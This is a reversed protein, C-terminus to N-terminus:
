LEGQGYKNLLYDAALKSIRGTKLAKKLYEMTKPYNGLGTAIYKLQIPTATFTGKRQLFKQYLIEDNLSNSHKEDAMKKNTRFYLAALFDLGHRIIITDGNSLDPLGLVSTKDKFILYPIHNRVRIIDCKMNSKISLDANKTTKLESGPLIPKKMWQLELIPQQYPTVTKDDRAIIIVLDNDTDFFSLYQTNNDVEISFIPNHSSIERKDIQEELKNLISINWKGNGNSSNLRYTGLGTKLHIYKRNNQISPPWLPILEPPKELLQVYRDRAYKSSEWTIETFRIKCVRWKQIGKTLLPYTEEVKLFSRDPVSGQFLFYYNIDTTIVGNLSISRSYIDGIRFFVGKSFIRSIKEGWIKSLATGSIKYELKYSDYVWSIPLRYTENAHIHELDVVKIQLKKEDKITIKQGTQKEEAITSENVPWFRLYLQFSDGIQKLDFPLGSIKRKLEEEYLESINGVYFECAQAIISGCEHRFHSKQTEGRYFRVPEGCFTCSYQGVHYCSIDAARVKVQVGLKSNDYAYEM